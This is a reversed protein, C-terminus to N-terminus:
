QGTTQTVGVTNGNTMSELNAFIVAFLLSTTRATYHPQKVRRQM